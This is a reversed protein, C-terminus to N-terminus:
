LGTVNLEQKGKYSIPVNIFVGRGAKVHGKLEVDITNNALIALANPLVQQLDATLNVPLLFTDLGPVDYTQALRANGVLRGNLYLDINADKMTMGFKNPNYFQVDMGIKPRMSVEMLRFNKVDQYELDKPNACSVFLIATVAAFIVINAFSRVREM